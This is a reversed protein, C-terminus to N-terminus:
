CMGMLLIIQHTATSSVGYSNTAEVELIHDAVAGCEGDAMYLRATLEAGEGLNRTSFTGDNDEDSFTTWQIASGDLAGDVEDNVSAVFDVEVYWGDGDEAEGDVPYFDSPENTPQVIEVEPPAVVDATGAEVGNVSLEQEGSADPSWSFEVRTDTQAPDDEPGAPPVTVDQEDIAAGNVELHVTETGSIDGHNQVHAFVVIPDGIVVTEETIDPDTGVSEVRIDVNPAEVSVTGAEVGNISLDFDGASEAIWGLEITSKGNEEDEEGPPSVVHTQSLVATGDVELDTTFEGPRDGTNVLNVTVTAREGVRIQSVDVTVSEVAIDPGNPETVNEDAPDEPPDGCGVFLLGHCLFVLSLVAVARRGSHSYRPVELNM